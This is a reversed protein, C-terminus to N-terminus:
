AGLLGEEVQASMLQASTNTVIANLSSVAASGSFAWCDGCQGQNQVPTLVPLTSQTWDVASPVVAVQMHPSLPSPSSPVPALLCHLSPPSPLFNLQTRGWM